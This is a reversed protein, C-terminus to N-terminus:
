ENDIDKAIIEIESMGDKGHIKGNRAILPRCTKAVQFAAYRETSSVHKNNKSYLLSVRGSEIDDISAVIYYTVKTPHSKKDAMGNDFLYDILDSLSMDVSMNLVNQGDIEIGKSKCYEIANMATSVKRFTAGSPWSLGQSSLLIAMDAEKESEQPDLGISAVLQKPSEAGVLDYNKWIHALMAAKDGSVRAINSLIAIEKNVIDLEQSRYFWLSDKDVIEGYKIVELGDDKDERDWKVIDYVHDTKKGHCMRCLTMGNDRDDRSPIGGMGRPNVHDAELFSRQSEEHGDYGCIVCRYDDLLLVDERFASDREPM